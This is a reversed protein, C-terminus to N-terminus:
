KVKTLMSKLRGYQLQGNKVQISSGCDRSQSAPVDDATHNTCEDPNNMPIDDMAQSHLYVFM